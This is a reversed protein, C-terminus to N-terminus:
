KKMWLWMVALGKTFGNIMTYVGIYQFNFLRFYVPIAFIVSIFLWLFISGLFKKIFVKKNM